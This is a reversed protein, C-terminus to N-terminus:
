RSAQHYSIPPSPTALAGHQPRSYAAPSRSFSQRRREARFIDRWPLGFRVGVSYWTDGRATHYVNGSVRGQAYPSPGHDYVSGASGSGSQSGCRDVVYILVGPEVVNPNEGLIGQNNFYIDQWITCYKQASAVTALALISLIAISITIFLRNFKM